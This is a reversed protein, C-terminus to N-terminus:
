NKSIMPMISCVTKFARTKNDIQVDGVAGKYIIIELVGNRLNQQPVVVEAAFYGEQRYFQAVTDALQEVNKPTILYGIYPRYLNSVQAAFADGQNRVLVNRLRPYTTSNYISRAPPCDAYDIQTAPEPLPLPVVELQIRSPVVSGPVDDSSPWVAM